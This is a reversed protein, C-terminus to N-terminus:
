RRGGTRAPGEVLEYSVHAPREREIVRVIAARRRPDLVTESRVVFERRRPPQPAPMGGASVRGGDFVSLTLDPFTLRLLLDLGDATGRRRGLEPANRVLARCVEVPLDEDLVLGLWAAELRLVHEPATPPSILSVLSDLTAVIPDLQEELSGVFRMTFDSELYAAPLGARLYRRSAAAPPASPVRDGNRRVRDPDEGDPSV